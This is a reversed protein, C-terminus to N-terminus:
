DSSSIIYLIHLVRLILGVLLLQLRGIRTEAILALDLVLYAVLLLRSLKLSELWNCRQILRPLVHVLAKRNSMVLVLLSLELRFGLWFTERLGMWTLVVM